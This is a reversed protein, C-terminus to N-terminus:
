FTNLNLLLAALIKTELHIKFIGLQMYKFHGESTNIGMTNVM